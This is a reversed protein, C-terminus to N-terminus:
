RFEPRFFDLPDLATVKWSRGRREVACKVRAQRRSAQTGQDPSAIQLSWDLELARRQDGGSDRVIEISSSVEGDALLAGVLDRLRSYGPMARDFHSLFRAADGDSLDTALRGLLDAV